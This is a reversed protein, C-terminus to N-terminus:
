RLAGAKSAREARKRMEPVSRVRTSPISVEMARVRMESIPRSMARQGESFCKAEQSPRQGPEFTEPPLTREGRVLSEALRAVVGKRNAALPRCLEWEARPAKKRRLFACSPAGFAM